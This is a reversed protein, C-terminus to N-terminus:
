PPVAIWIIKITWVTSSDDPMSPGTLKIGEQQSQGTSALCGGGSNFEADCVATRTLGTPNQGFRSFNKMIFQDKGPLGGPGKCTVAPEPGRNCLRWQVLGDSPVANSGQIFIYASPGAKITIPWNSRPKGIWCRGNPYGLATAASHFPAKGDTCDAFTAAGASVTLTRLTPVVKLAAGERRPPSQASAGLGALALIGIIIMLVLITWGTSRRVKIVYDAVQGGLAM